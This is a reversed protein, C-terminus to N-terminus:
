INIKFNINWYTLQKWNCILFKLYFKMHRGCISHLKVRHLSLKFHILYLTPNNGVTRNTQSLYHSGILKHVQLSTPLSVTITECWRIRAWFQTLWDIGSATSCPQRDRNNNIPSPVDISKRIWRMTICFEWSNQVNTFLSRRQYKLPTQFKTSVSYIQIYRFLQNYNSIFAELFNHLNRNFFRVYREFKGQM